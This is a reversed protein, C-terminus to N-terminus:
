VSGVQLALNGLALRASSLVMNGKQELPRFGPAEVRITYAGPAVAGFFFDGTESTEATRSEGNLESTIKVTAKPVVQGSPDAVTGAISSSGQQAYASMALILTLGPMLFRKTAM